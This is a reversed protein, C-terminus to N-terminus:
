SHVHHFSVNTDVICDESFGGTGNSRLVVVRDGEKWKKVGKGVAKVNGALEFGSSIFSSKLVKLM